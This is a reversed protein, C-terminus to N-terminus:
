WDGVNEPFPDVENHKRYEQWCTGHFFKLNELNTTDVNIGCYKCIRGCNFLDNSNAHPKRDETRHNNVTYSDSVTVTPYTFIIKPNIWIPYLFYILNDFWTALYGMIVVLAMGDM